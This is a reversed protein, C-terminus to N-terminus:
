RFGGQGQKLQNGQKESMKEYGKQGRTKYRPHAHSFPGGLFVPELSLAKHFTKPHQSTSMHSQAPPQASLNAYLWLSFAM